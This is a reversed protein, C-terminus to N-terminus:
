APSCPGDDYLNAASKGALLLRSHQILRQAAADTSWNAQLHHYGDRAAALIQEPSEQWRRALQTARREFEADTYVMGSQEDPILWDASGVEACVMAFCANNIAENIVVGWGERHDSSMLMIHGDAMIQNVSAVSQWGVFDVTDSIGLATAQAQLQEKLEGDGVMTLRANIGHTIFTSLLEIARQPRKLAIFRGVWVLNVVANPNPKVPPPKPAVFYGFKWARSKFLGLAQLDGAAYRGAALLHYNRRNVSYYNKWLFPLRAIFRALHLGKKWVREQYAYTLGGRSIRQKVYRVPFRGHIVVDADRIWDLTAQWDADSRDFRLLYAPAQEDVWGMAKRSASLSGQVALRFNQAGLQQVFAKALELQQYAAMNTLLILKM